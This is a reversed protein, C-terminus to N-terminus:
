NINYDTNITIFQLIGDLFLDIKIFYKHIFFLLLKVLLQKLFVIKVVIGYFIVGLEDLFSIALFNMLESNGFRHQMMINAGMM